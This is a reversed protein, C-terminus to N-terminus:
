RRIQDRLYNDQSQWHLFLSRKFCSCQCSNSQLSYLELIHVHGDNLCAMKQSTVVSRCLLQCKRQPEKEAPFSKHAWHFSCASLEYTADFARDGGTPRVCLGAYRSCQETSPFGVAGASEMPSLHAYAFSRILVWFRMLPFYHAIRELAHGHLNIFLVSLLGYNSKIGRQM